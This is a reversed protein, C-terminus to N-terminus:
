HKTRTNETWLGEIKYLDCALLINVRYRPHSCTRYVFFIGKISHVICYKVENCITRNDSEFFKAKQKEGYKRELHNRLTANNHFSYGMKTTYAHVSQRFTNVHVFTDVKQYFSEILLCISKAMGCSYRKNKHFPRVGM